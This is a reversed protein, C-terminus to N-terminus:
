DSGVSIPPQYSPRKHPPAAVSDRNKVPVALARSRINKAGNQDANIEYGCSLCRFHEQNKRNGKDCHGCYSCTKSTNRPDVAVVPVGVLRAKYTLFKRLQSFSWNSLRSRQTHRVTKECRSRLGNLEEIAIGAGLSLAKAAISKAVIHNINAQFRSQRKSMKRLRARASRTGKRQYTQRARSTRCRVDDIQKGSFTTGDDTTAIQVIGLDVGVFETVVLLPDAAIDITAYLYFASDRYVLDVQGKLRDLRGRQYEGCVFQILSRGSLTLISVKDIGKWSLIREDYTMAGNPRFKPCVARDRRFVEAAKGIARVAMQASLGFQCRLERYCLKQISPPSFVGADFGAQAAFSAAANFAKMTATLRKAQDPTPLLKVQVTLKMVAM